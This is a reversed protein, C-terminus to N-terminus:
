NVKRKNYFYVFMERYIFFGRSVNEGMEILISVEM